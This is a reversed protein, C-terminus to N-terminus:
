FVALEGKGCLSTSMIFHIIFLKFARLYQLPSNVYSNLCLASLMDSQDFKRFLGLFLLMIKHKDRDMNIYSHTRIALIRRSRAESNNM